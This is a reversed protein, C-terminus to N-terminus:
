KCNCKTISQTKCNCGCNLLRKYLLKAEDLRGYNMASVHGYLTLYLRILDDSSEACCDNSISVIKDFLCDYVFEVDSVYALKSDSPMSPDKPAIHLEVTYISHPGIGMQGISFFSNLNSTDLARVAHSFDIYTDSTIWTNNVYEEAKITCGDFTYNSPCDASLWIVQGSNTNKVKCININIKSM